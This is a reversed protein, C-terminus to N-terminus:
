CRTRFGTPPRATEPQPNTGTQSHSRLSDSRSKNAKVEVVILMLSRVDVQSAPLSSFDASRSHRSSQHSSAQTMQSVFVCLCVVSEACAQCSCRWIHWSQRQQQRKQRKWARKKWSPCVCVYILANNGVSEVKVSNFQYKVCGSVCVCEFEWNGPFGSRKFTRWHVECWLCSQHATWCVRSGLLSLCASSLDM